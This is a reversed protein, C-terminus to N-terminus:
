TSSNNVCYSEYTIPAPLALAPQTWRDRDAVRAVGPNTEDTSCQQFLLHTHQRDCLPVGPNTARPRQVAASQVSNITRRHRLPITTRRGNRLTMSPGGSRPTTTVPARATAARRVDVYDRVCQTVGLGVPAPNGISALAEGGPKSPLRGPRFPMKGRDTASRSVRLRSFIARFDSQVSEVSWSGSNLLKIVSM